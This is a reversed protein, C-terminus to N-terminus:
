SSVVFHKHYIIAGSARELDSEFQAHGTANGSRYHESITGARQRILLWQLYCLVSFHTKWYLCEMCPACYLDLVLVGICACWLVFGTCACWLVFRICACLLLGGFCLFLCSFFGVNIRLLTTM